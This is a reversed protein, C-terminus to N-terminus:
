RVGSLVSRDLRALSRWVLHLTNEWDARRALGTATHAYRGPVSISISPVGTRVRHIAGADTGGGGPQRVQYPIGEEEGTMIVHRILRPDGLTGSDALYIAPGGDLRTNYSRNELAPGTGGDTDYPPLDYAPTSDVAIALEPDLAYAAVRAGRLGIEEQVSWSFLLEIQDLGGEGALRLIEILIACGLRNDLAKAIFSPGVERFRTSFVARDGVKVKGGNPGTDIRLGDLPIKNDTEGPEVLHIPKAGIVGPIHNKGVLVGKGPLTREDIGGVKVFRFLGGEDDAVIMFGIEDMHADLMVRLPNQTNRARRIALVNGLADVSVEDALPKVQELVISRVEREDGSVASANCLRELLAIQEAGIMPLSNQNKDTM